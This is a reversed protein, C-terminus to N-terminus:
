QQIGDDLLVNFWLEDDLWRPRTTYPAPHAKSSHRAHTRIGSSKSNKAGKETGYLEASRMCICDLM